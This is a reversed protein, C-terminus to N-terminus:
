PRLALNVTGSAETALTVGDPGVASVSADSLREGAKLPRLKRTPTFAWATWMEGQRVLGALELDGAALKELDPVLSSLRSDPSSGPVPIECVNVLDKRGRIEAATGPAILLRGGDVVPVLGASSALAEIVQDARVDSAYMRVTGHLGPPALIPREAVMGLACLTETLAANRNKIDMPEASYDAPTGAAAAAPKGARSVRRIPGPGVALGASGMAALAEELTAGEVDMSIRGEVDGDLVFSASTLENLLIFVDILEYDRLHLTLARGDPASGRAGRAIVRGSPPVPECFAATGPEFLGNGLDYEDSREAPKVGATVTFAQCRAAPSMRVDQVLFGAKALAPRLGDGASKGLLVGEMVAKGCDWRLETLGVARGEMERGFVVLADVLRGPQSRAALDELLKLTLEKRRVMGRLMEDPSGAKLDEDDWDRYRPYALRATFSVTGGEEAELRLTELESLRATAVQLRVLLL